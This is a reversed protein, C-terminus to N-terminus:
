KLRKAGVAIRSKTAPIRLHGPWHIATLGLGESAESDHSSDRHTVAGTWGEPTTLTEM